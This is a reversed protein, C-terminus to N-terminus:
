QQVLLLSNNLFLVKSLNPLYSPKTFSAGVSFRIKFSMYVMGDHAANKGIVYMKM